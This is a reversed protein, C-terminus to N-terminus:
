PIADAPCLPMAPMADPRPPTARAPAPAAACDTFRAAPEAPSVIASLYRPPALVATPAVPPVDVMPEIRPRPPPPFGRPLRPPSCRGPARRPPTPPAFLGGGRGRWGCPRLAQLAVLGHAM